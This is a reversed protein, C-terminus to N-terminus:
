PKRRQGTLMRLLWISVGTAIIDGMIILEYSKIDHFVLKATHGLLYGLVGIVSAWILASLAIQLLM